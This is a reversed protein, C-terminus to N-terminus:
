AAAQVHTEYAVLQSLQRLNGHFQAVQVELEFHVYLQLQQDAVDAIASTLM